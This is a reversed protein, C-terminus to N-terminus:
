RRRRASHAAGDREVRQELEEAKADAADAAAEMDVAEHTRRNRRSSSRTDDSASREARSARREARAISDAAAKEAAKAEAKVKEAAEDIWISKGFSRLEEDIRTRADALSASDPYMQMLSQGRLNQVKYIEGKYQELAFFEEMTFRATNNMGDSMVLHQRLFPRLDEYNFWCMPYRTAKGGFDGTRHVVPCVALVRPRFRGHKQDFEWREKIYYSLVENSPIDSEDVEYTEDGGKAGPKVQYYIQFKDLIDRTKVKYKETFVERGDLFEYGTLEGKCMANMIVCILNTMGDQPEVPYYLSANPGEELNLERYVVHQWPVETAEDRQYEDFSQQRLTTGGPAVVPQANKKAPTAKRTPNPVAPSTPAAPRAAADPRAAPSESKPPTPKAPSEARTDPMDSMVTRRPDRRDEKRSTERKPKAPSETSADKKPTRRVSVQAGAQLSLTSMLLVLSLIHTLHKM